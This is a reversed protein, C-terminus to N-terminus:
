KIFKKKVESSSNIYKVVMFHAVKSLKKVAIIIADHQKPTRPIGTIFDLSIM